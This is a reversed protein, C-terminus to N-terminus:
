KVIWTTNTTLPVTGTIVAGTVNSTGAAATSPIYAYVTQRNANQEAILKNQQKVTENLERLLTM